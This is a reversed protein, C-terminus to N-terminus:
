ATHKQPCAMLSKGSPQNWVNIRVGAGQPARRRSSRKLAAPPRHSCPSAASSMASKTDTFHQTRSSASPVSQKATSCLGSGSAVGRFHLCTKEPLLQRVNSSHYNGCANGAQNIPPLYAGRIGPTRTHEERGASGPPRTSSPRPKWVVRSM